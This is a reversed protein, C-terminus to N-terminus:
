AVERLTALEARLAAVRRADYGRDRSEEFRLGDRAAEIALQEETKAKQGALWAARKANAWATRLCAKWLSLLADGLKIPAPKNSAKSKKIRANREATLKTIDAVRSEYEAHAAQMIARRDYMAQM